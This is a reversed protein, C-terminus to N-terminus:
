AARRPTVLVHWGHEQAYRRLEAQPDVAVANGVLSLLPIDSESDGFAYSEQWVIDDFFPVAQRLKDVKGSELCDIGAIRGTYVGAGDKELVTCVLGVGLSVAFPELYVDLGASVLFVRCGRAQLDRLRDLVPTKVINNLRGQYARVLPALEAESYGKFLGTLHRRYTGSNLLHLRKCAKFALHQLWKGIFFNPNQRPSLLFHEAFDTITTVGVLTQCVDFLAVKIKTPSSNEM